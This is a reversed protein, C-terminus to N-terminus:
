ASRVPSQINTLISPILSASLQLFKGDDWTWSRHIKIKAYTRIALFFFTLGVFVSAVTTITYSLPIPGNFDFRVGPPPSIAPIQALTSANPLATDSSM